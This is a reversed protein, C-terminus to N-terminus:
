RAVFARRAQLYPSSQNRELFLFMHEPVESAAGACSPDIDTPFDIATIGNSTRLRDPAVSRSVPRVM